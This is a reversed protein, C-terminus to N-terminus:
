WISQSPFLHAERLMPLTTNAANWSETEAAIEGMPGFDGSGM